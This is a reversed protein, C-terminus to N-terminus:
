LWLDQRKTCVGNIKLNIDAFLKKINKVEEDPKRGHLEPSVLMLKYGLNKLEEFVKFDPYKGTFSDLWVWEPKPHLTMASFPSEFESIRVMTKQYGQNIEKVLFPFTQDLFAWNEINKLEFINRLSTELGEEKVNAILFKHKYNEIWDSFKVGSDFAEHAIYLEKGDSRIDVEVGFEAPTAILDEISNVRHKCIIM